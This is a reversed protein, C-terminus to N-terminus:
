PAITRRSGHRGYGQEDQTTPIVVEFETVDVLAWAAGALVDGEWVAKPEGTVETFSLAELPDAYAYLSDLRSPLAQAIRARASEYALETWVKDVNPVM